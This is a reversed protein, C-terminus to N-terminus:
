GINNWCLDLRVSLASKKIANESAYIFDIFAEQQLIRV